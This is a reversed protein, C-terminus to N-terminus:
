RLLFLVQSYKIVASFFSFETAFRGNGCSLVMLENFFLYYFSYDVSKDFFENVIQLNPYWKAM